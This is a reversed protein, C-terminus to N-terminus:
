CNKGDHTPSIMEIEKLTQVRRAKIGAVRDKQVLKYAM